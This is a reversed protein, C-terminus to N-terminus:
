RRNLITLTEIHLTNPFFDFRKKEAVEFNTLYRLDRDLTKPNCSIYIVKKAFSDNIEELLKADCGKRPPDLIVIDREIKAEKADGVQFTVNEVNNLLANKKADTIAAQVIEIGHVHKAKKAALISITGIGCYADLVTSKEDINELVKSYLMETLPENVQYFSHLSIQFTLGLLEATIYPKGFITQSKEGLIVNTKKDNYNLVISSVPLNLSLIKQSVKHPEKGRKANLVLAIMIEEGSKRLFIHRLLGKHTKENYPEIRLSEIQSIIDVFDENAIKCDYFNVNEHTGTKYYGIGNNTVPFTVKNRYHLDKDYFDINKLKLQEEYDMHLLSCGGCSLFAPCIPTVRARSEEIINLVKGYAYTKKVKVIKLKVLEGPLTNPTFVVFGDIKSVGSGLESLELIETTYIDNKTPRSFSQKESSAWADQKLM